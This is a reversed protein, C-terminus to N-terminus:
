ECFVLTTEWGGRVGVINANVECKIDEKSIKCPKTVCESGRNQCSVQGYSNQGFALIETDTRLISHEGGCEIECCVYNEYGKITQFRKPERVCEFRDDWEDTGLQGYANHGMVYCSGKEDLCLSHNKGCDIQVLKRDNEQGLFPHLMGHDILRDLLVDKGMGCQGMANSGFVYLKGEKSLCLNHRLGCQVDVIHVDDNNPGMNHVYQPQLQWGFVRSTVSQRSMGCQRHKNYGCALVKGNATLFVSHQLGCAIQAITIGKLIDYTNYIHLPHLTIADKIPGMNLTSGIGLQGKDNQGMAFFQGQHSVMVCHRATVGHSIVSIYDSTTHNDPAHILQLNDQILKTRSHKRYINSLTNYESYKFSKFQIFGPQACRDNNPGIGFVKYLPPYYITILRIVGDPIISDINDMQNIFCSILLQRHHGAMMELSPRRHLLVNKICIPLSVDFLFLLNCFSFLFAFECAHSSLCVVASDFVTCSGIGGSFCCSTM